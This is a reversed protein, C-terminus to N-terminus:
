HAGEHVHAPAAAAAPELQLLAAANPLGQTSTGQKPIQMWEQRVERGADDCTQVIQFWLAGPEPPLTMRLVFEDFWDSALYSAPSAASWSVETPTAVLTWGPKPMPRAGRVGAPIRVSIGRTPLGDCGHGVRFVARYGSGAPASPQDLVVHARAAGAVTLLTLAAIKAVATLHITKM